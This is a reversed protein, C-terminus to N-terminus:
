KYFIVNVGEKPIIPAESGASVGEETNLLQQEAAQTDERQLRAFEDSGIGTLSRLGRGKM